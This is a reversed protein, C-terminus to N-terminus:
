FVKTNEHNELENFCLWKLFMLFVSTTEITNSCKWKENVALENYIM